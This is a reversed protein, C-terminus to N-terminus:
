KSKQIRRRSVLVIGCGIVLAAGLVYFIVTGIGGTSPLETGQTNTIPFPLEVPPEETWDIEADTGNNKFTYKATASTNDDITVTYGSLVDTKFTYSKYDAKETDSLANYAAESIWTQGNKTYETVTRETTQAAIVIKHKVTDRVYGAPAEVEELYYTGADLGHIGYESAGEVKLRGDAGSVIKLPQLDNGSADKPVYETGNTDTYLRFKAEALPGTVYNRPSIESTTKTETIPNGSADVGIKVIESTKKGSQTSDSGLGDADISFTYHQTTDKKFGHDSEDSPNHSFETAVENKETNVHVPATTTVIADYTVKVATPVKVKKLYAASFSITYGTDSTTVEYDYETADGVKKTLGAPAVLTVTNAKLKLDTLKDTIKFTPNTYVEGYGPITTEVTYSVTDGIATTTWKKDDWNDETTSATKKLETTSKKAASTDSYTANETISWSASTNTKNYDSAVFVPNYVTDANVPTILAMYLGHKNEPITLEAKGDAATKSTKPTEATILKALEGAIESTIGPNVTEDVDTTAPDDAVGKLIETLKAKTLYSSFPAVAKWGGVNGDASGVWEVVQYFNAIDGDTLGTVTVKGDYAPEDEAFATAGMAFTMSLVMALTM